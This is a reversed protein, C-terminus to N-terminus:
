NSALVNGVIPKDLSYKQSTYLHWHSTSLFLVGLQDLDLVGFHM